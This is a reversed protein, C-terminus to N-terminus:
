IVLGKKKMGELGAVYWWTGLGDVHLEESGDQANSDEGGSSICAACALLVILGVRWLGSCLGLLTAGVRIAFKAFNSLLPARVDM